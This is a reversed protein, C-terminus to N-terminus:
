LRTINGFTQIRRVNGLGFLTYKQRIYRRATINRRTRTHCCNPCFIEVQQVHRQRTELKWVKISFVVKVTMLQAFLNSYLFYGYSFTTMRENTWKVRFIIYIGGFNTKGFYHRKNFEINWFIDPWMRYSSTSPHSVKETELAVFLVNVDIRNTQWFGPRWWCNENMKAIECKGLVDTTSWPWDVHQGLVFAAYSLSIPWIHTTNMRVTWICINCFVVANVVTTFSNAANCLLQFSM